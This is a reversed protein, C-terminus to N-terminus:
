LGEFFKKLPEFAIKSWNEIENESFIRELEKFHVFKGQELESDKPHIEEATTKILYLVGLHVKGVDNSDDNIYGLVILEKISEEPIIIEEKIERLMSKHLPNENANSNGDYDPPDIHGGIGITFNNHLREEGAKTSRQYIFVKKLEQNIIICYAIPQKYNPNKEALGRKMWEFNNLIKHHFDKESHHLFGQFYDEDFLKKTNVVMVEKEFKDM